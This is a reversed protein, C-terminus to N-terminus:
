PATGRLGNSAAVGFPGAPDSVWAQLWLGFGSLLPPASPSGLALAGSPGTILGPILFDPSPVLVGGKFAAQLASFGLILTTASSPRSRACNVGHVEGTVYM